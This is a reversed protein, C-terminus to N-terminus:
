VPFSSLNPTIANSVQTGCHLPSCPISGLNTGFGLSQGGRTVTKELWVLPKHKKGKVLKMGSKQIRKLM